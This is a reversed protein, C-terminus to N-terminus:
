EGEAVSYSRARRREGGVLYGKRRLEQLHGLITVKTCDLEAALEDMTPAVQNEAIIAKFTDLVVKQKPTLGPKPGRRALVDHCLLVIDPRDPFEALLQRAVDAPTKPLNALTTTM